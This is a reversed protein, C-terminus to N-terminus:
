IMQCKDVRGCGFFSYFQGLFIRSIFHLTHYEKLLVLVTCFDLHGVPRKSIPNTQPDLDLPVGLPDQPALPVDQPDWPTLRSIQYTRQHNTCFAWSNEQYDPKTQPDLYSPIRPSGLPELCADLPVM